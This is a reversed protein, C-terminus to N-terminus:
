RGKTVAVIRGKHVEVTQMSDMLRHERKLAEWLKEFLIDSYQMLQPHVPLRGLSGGVPTAQLQNNAIALQYDSGLYIPHGFLSHQITIRCVGESLNVFVRDFKFYDSTGDSSQAKVTAALYKNITAEDMSLSQPSRVQMQEELISALPPADALEDKKLVPPVDDPSRAILIVMAVLIAWLLANFLSKQWGVFFGRAPTTLRQVRKRAQQPTEKPDTPQQPLLSRDLKAGCNHCYVREGENVHGCQKCTLTGTAAM